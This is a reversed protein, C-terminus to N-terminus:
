NETQSFHFILPKLHELVYACKPILDAKILRINKSLGILAIRTYTFLALFLSLIYEGASYTIVRGYFYIRHWTSLLEEQVHIKSTDANVCQNSLSLWRSLSCCINSIDILLCWSYIGTQSCSPVSWNSGHCTTGLCISVDEQRNIEVINTTTLRTPQTPIVPTILTHTPMLFSTQPNKIHKAFKSITSSTNNKQM